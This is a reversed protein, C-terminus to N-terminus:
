RGRGLAWRLRWWLPRRKNQETLLAHVARLDGHMASLNAHLATIDAKLQERAAEIDAKSAWPSPTQM